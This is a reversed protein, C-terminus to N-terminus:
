QECIIKQAMYLNINKTPKTNNNDTNNDTNTITYYYKISQVKGM